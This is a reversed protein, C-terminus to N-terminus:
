SRSSGMHEGFLKQGFEIVELVRFGLRWFGSGFGHLAPVALGQPGLGVFWSVGRDRVVFGGCFAGSQSVLFAWVEFSRIESAKLMGM